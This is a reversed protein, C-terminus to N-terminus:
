GRRGRHRFYRRYTGKGALGGGLVVLCAGGPVVIDPAGHLLSVALLVLGIAICSFGIGQDTNM